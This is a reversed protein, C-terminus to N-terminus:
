GPGEDKVCTWIHRSVTDKERAPVHHRPPHPIGRNQKFDYKDKPKAPTSIILKSVIPKKGRIGYAIGHNM